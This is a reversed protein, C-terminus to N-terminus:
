SQGWDKKGAKCVYEARMRRIEGEHLITAIKQWTVYEVLVGYKWESLQEPNLSIVDRFKVIDGEKM